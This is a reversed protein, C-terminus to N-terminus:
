LGRSRGDIREMLAALDSDVGIKTKNVWLGTIVAISELAKNSAAIQRMVQGTPKGYRDVSPNGERALRHNEKFEAILWDQTVEVREAIAAQGEAVAAQINLKALLQSGQENATRKSYGARIAAQTANLDILYEQVFRTQKPTMKVAQARLGEEHKGTAKRSGGSGQAFGQRAIGSAQPRSGERQGEIAAQPPVGDRIRRALIRALM